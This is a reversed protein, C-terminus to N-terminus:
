RGGCRGDVRLAARAQVCMPHQGDAGKKAKFKVVLEMQIGEEEDDDADECTYNIALKPLLDSLTLGSGQSSILSGLQSLLATVEAAVAPNAPQSVDIPSTPRVQPPTAKARPIIDTGSCDCQIVGPGTSHICGTPEQDPESVGQGDGESSTYDEGGLMEANSYCNTYALQMGTGQQPNALTPKGYSTDGPPTSDVLVGKVAGPIYADIVGPEHLKKFEATADEGAVGM